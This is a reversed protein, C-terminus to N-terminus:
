IENREEFKRWIPEHSNSLLMNIEPQIGRMGYQTKFYYEESDKLANPFFWKQAGTYSCLYNLRHDAETPINAEMWKSQPSPADVAYAKKLFAVLDDRNKKEKFITNVDEVKYIPQELKNSYYNLIAASFLSTFTQLFGLKAWRSLPTKEVKYDMIEHFLEFNQYFSLDRVRNPYVWLFIAGPFKRGVRSYSQIYEAINRTMGQFIMVNWRDIDVGHSVVSTAFTVHIKHGSFNTITRITEKIDEIDNDGTLPKPVFEPDKIKSTVVPNLFYNMGHVDAKKGHYTLYCQYFRLMERLEDDSVKYKVAHAHLDKSVRDLFRALHFLTHLSAFQNDRLNPKLGFMLRQIMPKGDAREVNFFFDNDTGPEPSEGPFVFTDRNYLQRIQEQVGSVTATMTIYKFRKGCFEQLLADLLSEFHSDITGFGESLLHMEDQIM